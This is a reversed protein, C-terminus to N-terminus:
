FLLSGFNKQIYEDREDKNVGKFLLVGARGDAWGARKGGKRGEWLSM